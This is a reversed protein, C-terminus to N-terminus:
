SELAVCDRRGHLPSRRIGAACSRRWEDSRNKVHEGNKLKPDGRARNGRTAHITRGRAESKMPRTKWGCTCSAAVPPERRRRTGKYRGPLKMQGDEPLLNGQKPTETGEIYSTPCFPIEPRFYRFPDGRKGKGIRSLQGDQVLADIARQGTQRSVDAGLCIGQLDCAEPESSPATRFIADKADKLTTERREGMAVYEGSDRLEIVLNNPTESFRSLSQIERRNKGANGEPKRLSLVIDVAGAFASSGRGSDGVDGGGKREHRVLIIGLGAAAAEQIPLMSELADGSNNEKDGSLGAFQGLTDVILLRAKNRHCETIAASAIQPWELGRTESFMLSVFDPRGLLSARETAKRFSVAPQETLYVVKTRVTPEGLFNLGDLIARVMALVLTTKGMKVKAGLETISGRAVFGKAIWPVEQDPSSALDQGTQFRLIRKQGVEERLPASLNSVERLVEAADGNAAALKEGILSCVEMRHRVARKTKVIEVYQTLNETRYLPDLLSSIVPGLDTKEQPSLSDLLLVADNLPRGELSLQVLKAAIRKYEDVFFNKNTPDLLDMVDPGLVDIATSTRCLIGSLLAREAEPSHPPPPGLDNSQKRKM